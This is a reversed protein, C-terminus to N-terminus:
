QSRRHMVVQRTPEFQWVGAAPARALVAEVQEVTREPWWGEARYLALVGHAPVPRVAHPVIVVDALEVVIAIRAAGDTGPVL